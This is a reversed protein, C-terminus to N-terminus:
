ITELGSKDSPKQKIKPAPINTSGDPQVIVDVRPTDVLLYAIDVIKKFPSSLKLDVQILRAAALPAADAPESGHLVFNQIVARLHHWDFSFSGIEARGGTADEVAAVIKQRVTDRFWQTQIVVLGAVVALLLLGSLGGLVILAIKKPRSM